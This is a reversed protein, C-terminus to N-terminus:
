EAIPAQHINAVGPIASAPRRAIAAYLSGLSLIDSEEVRIVLPKRLLQRLIDLGKLQRAITHAQHVTALFKHARVSAYEQSPERRELSIDIPLEQRM